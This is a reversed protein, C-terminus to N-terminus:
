NTPLTLHTYSVAKSGVFCEQIDVETQKWNGAQFKWEMRAAQVQIQRDSIPAGDLNTVILDIKLPTGKEVFYQDSRLGVYYEAPHVLLSTNASWAQRNVDMVTAEALISFPRMERSGTFELDLYHNGTADTKGNFTEVQNEGIGGDFYFWWPQWVGFTFDAWNPPNYNTPTSSVLWNVEANPM